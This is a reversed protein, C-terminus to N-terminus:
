YWVASLLCVHAATSPSSHSVPAIDPMAAVKEKTLLRLSMKLSQLTTQHMAMEEELVAELM